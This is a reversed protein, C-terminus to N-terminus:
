ALRDVFSAMCRVAFAGPLDIAIEPVIELALANVGRNEVDFKFLGGLLRDHRLCRSKLGVHHQRIQERYSVFAVFGPRRIFSQRLKIRSPRFYFFRKAVQSPLAVIWVISAPMERASEFGTGLIGLHAKM